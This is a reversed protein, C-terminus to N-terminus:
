QLEKRVLYSDVLPHQFNQRPIVLLALSTLSFIPNKSLNKVYIHM